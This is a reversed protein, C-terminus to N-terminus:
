GTVDIPFSSWLIRGDGMQGVFDDGWCKVGGLMTLACTHNFGAGIAVVGSGLSLVDVPITRDDLTGDGLQGYSNDGWCKVGGSTSLACTHHEGATIAIAENGLGVVDVPTVIPKLTPAGNGLQGEENQGWCKVGGSAMLACTHYSGAVIAVAGNDLGVVDVPTLRDIETGDGLQGFGNWGWCKVGGSAMLACTHSFGLTVASVGSDLGLVNVPTSSPDTTGDGLGGYETQGWCKVGGTATVVCIHMLGISVSKVGSDVGTVDTPTQGGTWCKLEGKSTLACDEFGGAAVATLDSSLGNVDALTSRDSTSGETLYGSGWCKVGEVTTLACAHSTGASIAAVDNSLGTVDVPIVNVPPLGDGLQGTRNNGWCKLGGSTMLACTHDGGATVAAVGSGLNTVNVPTLRNETTGDGLEGYHNSGWCKVGGSVLLACTRGSGAAIATVGSGMGMVDVPTSRDMTTGDGLQGWTNNGWCKVGGVATLACTHNSGATISAVKGDLGVVDMPVTSGEKATGDGLQGSANFGWCKVGGATTLACIHGYGNSVAAVGSSLSPVDVPTSSFNPKGEKWQGYWIAGWCKVGGSATVACARDGGVSVSVVGRGLGAVEVPTSSDIETGDGLEGSANLGWCKAGSADTLVCSQNEGVEVSVVGSSLGVVDVPMSSPITTGDGLEGFGNDGWCRVGGSATLACTHDGGASIIINYTLPISPTPTPPPQTATPTLKLPSMTAKPSLTPLPLVATITATTPAQNCSSTSILIIMTIAVLLNNVPRKM